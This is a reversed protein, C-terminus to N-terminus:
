AGKLVATMGGTRYITLEHIMKGMGRGANSISQRLVFRHEIDVMTFIKCKREGEATIQCESASDKCRNEFFVLINVM